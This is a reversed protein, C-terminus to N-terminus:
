EPIKNGQSSSELSVLVFGDNTRLWGPSTASQSISETLSQRVMLCMACVSNYANSLAQLPEGVLSGQVLSYLTISNM